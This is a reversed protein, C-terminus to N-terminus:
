FYLLFMAEYLTYPNRLCWIDSSIWGFLIFNHFEPWKLHFEHILIEFCILIVFLEYLFLWFFTYISARKWAIQRSQWNCNTSMKRQFPNTQKNNARNRINNNHNEYNNKLLWNMKPLLHIPWWWNYHDEFHFYCMELPAM